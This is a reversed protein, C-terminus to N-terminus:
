NRLRIRLDPTGAAFTVTERQVRHGPTEITLTHAGPPASMCFRGRADARIAFSLEAVSVRAGSLPLGDADEVQGCLLPWQSEDVVPDPLVPAVTPHSPAHRSTAPQVPQAPVHRANELHARPTRGEGEGPPLTAPEPPSELTRAADDGSGGIATTEPAVLPPIVQELPLRTSATQVRSSGRVPETASSDHRVFQVRPLRVGMFAVSGEDASQPQAPMLQLALVIALLGGVSSLALVLANDTRRQRRQGPRKSAARSTDAALGTYPPTAYGGRELTAPEDEAGTAALSAPVEGEYESGTMLDDHAADTQVHSHNDHTTADPTVGDARRFVEDVAARTMGTAQEGLQEFFLELKPVERARDPAPQGRRSQDKVWAPLDFVPGDIHPHEEMGHATLETFGDTDGSALAELMREAEVPDSHPARTSATPKVGIRGYGAELALEGARGLEPRSPPPPPEVQAYPDEEHLLPVSTLMVPAPMGHSIAVILAETRRTLDDLFLDAPDQALLRRLADDHKALRAQRDRCEHCAGLHRVVLELSPGALAGDLSASLQQVTLHM